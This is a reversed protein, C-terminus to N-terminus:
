EGEEVDDQGPIYTVRVLSKTVDDFLSHSVQLSEHLTVDYQYYNLDVVNNEGLEVSSTTLSSSIYTNLEEQSDFEAIVNKFYDKVRYSM